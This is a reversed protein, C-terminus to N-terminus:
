NLVIHCMVTAHNNDITTTWFYRHYKYRALIPMKYGIELGMWDSKIMLEKRKHAFLRRILETFINRM